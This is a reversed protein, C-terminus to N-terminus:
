RMLNLLYGLRYKDFLRLNPQGSCLQAQWSAQRKEFQKRLVATAGMQRLRLALAYMKFAQKAQSPNTQAIKLINQLGMETKALFDESTELVAHEVPNEINKVLLGKQHLELGFLTDEHGYQTLSENFQVINFVQADILFNNSHFSRSNKGAVVSEREQGYKLHLAYEKEATAPYKRGGCVVANSIKAQWYNSLFNDNLLRSDCDLFLLFNGNAKKALLNRIAARGINQPLQLYQVEPLANLKQNQQHIGEESADDILIIEFTLADAAALRHLQQVLNQV